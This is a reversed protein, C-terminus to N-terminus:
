SLEGAVFKLIVTVRTLLLGLDLVCIADPNAAKHGDTDVACFRSWKLEKGGDELAAVAVGNEAEPVVELGTVNRRRSVTTATKLDRAWLSLTQLAPTCERERCRVKDLGGSVM